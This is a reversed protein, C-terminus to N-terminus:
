CSLNMSEAEEITKYVKFLSYFGSIEFVEKVNGDLETFCLKNNNLNLKKAFALIVRLGASSIYALEKLSFITNAIGQDIAKNLRDDLKGATTTDLKGTISILTVDDKKEVNIEM